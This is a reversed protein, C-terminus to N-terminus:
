SLRLDAPEDDNPSWGQEGVLRVFSVAGLDEQHFENDRARTVKVLRQDSDTGIPIVLRGGIALQDKLARPVAPGSAAVLIVDFPSAQPWGCTGDGLRLEINRYGLLEFRAGALQVLAERREIAYVHAAIQSLVAAAYGSGAGVELVNSGARVQAADIMAAVIYPQSITQGEEIPIPSDEYAFEAMDRSVFRERPVMRMAALVNPDRIGRQVLQTAVMRRRQHRYDNM